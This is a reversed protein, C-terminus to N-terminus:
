CQMDFRQMFPPNVQLWNKTKGSSGFEDVDERLVQGDNERDPSLDLCRTGVSHPM